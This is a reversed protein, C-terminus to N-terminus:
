TKCCASKSDNTENAVVQNTAIDIVDPIKNNKRQIAADLDDNDLREKVQKVLNLFAEDVNYGTKASTEVYNINYKKALEQGRDTDILRNDTFDIKNAVLLKDISTLAHADITRTWRTINNFSRDDTVSYVLLVGQAGRIYATTISNFKEQGASDWVQIKIKKGDIDVTKVKFDVGITSIFSPSFKEDCFRMMLSSKGAGSDGIILIKIVRDYYPKSKSPYTTKNSSM